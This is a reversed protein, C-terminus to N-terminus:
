RDNVISAFRNPRKPFEDRMRKGIREIQGGYGTFDRSSYASLGQSLMMIFRKRRSSLPAVAISYPRMAAPMETAIMAVTLVSPPWNFFVNEFTDVWSPVAPLYGDGDRELPGPPCAAAAAQKPTASTSCLDASVC